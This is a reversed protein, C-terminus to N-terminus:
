GAKLRKWPGGLLEKMTVQLRDREGVWVGCDSIQKRDRDSSRKLVCNQNHGDMFVEVHLQPPGRPLFVFQM